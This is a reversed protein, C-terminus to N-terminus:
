VFFPVVRPAGKLEVYGRNSLHLNPICTFALFTATLEFRPNDQGALALGAEIAKIREAV